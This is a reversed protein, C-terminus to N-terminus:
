CDEPLPPCVYVIGMDVTINEVLGSVKTIEVDSISGVYFAHPSNGEGSGCCADM